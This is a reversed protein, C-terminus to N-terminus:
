VPGGIESSIANPGSRRGMRAVMGGVMRGFHPQVRWDMNKAAKFTPWNEIDALRENVSGVDEDSHGLAYARCLELYLPVVYDPIRLADSLSSIREWGRKYAISFQSQADTGFDPYVDLVPRPPTGPQIVAARFTFASDAEYQHARLDLIVSPDVLEVDAVLTNRASVKIISGFDAPLAITSAHLTGTIDGASLDGAASSISTKLTIQAASGARGVDVWHPNLTGAGGTCEFQHGEVFEYGTFPNIAASVLLLTSETWNGDTISINGHGKLKRQTTTLWSWSHLATMFQGVMNIFMTAPLRLHPLGTAHLAQDYAVQALVKNTDVM